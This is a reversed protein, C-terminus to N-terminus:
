EDEVAQIAPPDNLRLAGSERPDALDGRSLRGDVASVMSPPLGHRAETNWWATGGPTAILSATWDLYASYTEEPLHGSEYLALASQFFLAQESMMTYFLSRDNFPLGPSQSLGMSFARATAPELFLRNVTSFRDAIGQRSATRLALTNQRIQGALYILTVVVALGGILDGLNGLAELM